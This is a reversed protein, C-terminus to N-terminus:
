DVSGNRAYRYYSYPTGGSPVDTYYGVGWAGNADKFTFIGVCTGANYSPHTNLNAGQIYPAGFEAYLAGTPDTFWVGGTDPDTVSMAMDRIEKVPIPAPNVPPAPAPVPPPQQNNFAAWDAASGMFVDYDIAQGAVPRQGSQWVLCPKTPTAAGPDALWVWRGWPFGQASLEADFSLNVYFMSRKNPTITTWTEVNLAWQAMNSALNAWGQPDEQEVDLAPPLESGGLSSAMNQFNHLQDLIPVGPDWFHYLGVAVGAARAAAVQQPADPNRISDGETAKFYAFQIGAFDAASLTGQYQSFDRGNPM